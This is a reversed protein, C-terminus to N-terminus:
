GLVSWGGRHGIEVLRGSGHLRRNPEEGVAVHQVRRVRQVAFHDAITSWMLSAPGTPSCGFGLRVIVGDCTLPGACLTSPGNVTVVLWGGAVTVAVPPSINESAAPVTGIAFPAM